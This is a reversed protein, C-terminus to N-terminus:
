ASPIQRCRAHPNKSSAFFATFRRREGPESMRLVLAIPGTMGTGCFVESREEAKALSGPAPKLIIGESVFAELAMARAQSLDARRESILCARFGESTEVSVPVGGDFAVWWRGGRDEKALAAGIKEPHRGQNVVPLCVGKLTRAIAAPRTPEPDDDGLQPVVELTPPAQAYTPGSVLAGALLLAGLGSRVHRAIM